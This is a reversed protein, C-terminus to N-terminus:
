SHQRPEVIPFVQYVTPGSHLRGRRVIKILGRCELDAIIKQVGRVTIGARRAIDAQGTRATGTAAKIDRFLILWVKVKAGTLSALTVDTFSNLFEFRTTQRGAPKKTPPSRIPCSRRLIADAPLIGGHQENVEQETLERM